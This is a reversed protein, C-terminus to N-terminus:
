CTTELKVVGAIPDFGSVQIHCYKKFTIDKVFPQLDEATKSCTWGWLDEWKDDVKRKGYRYFAVAAIWISIHAVIVISSWWTGITAAFNARRVGHCYSVLIIANILMSTVSISFYTYTYTTNTNEPWIPQEEDNHGSHTNNRTQLFKVLTLTMPVVVAISLLVAVVRSIFRMVRIRYKMNSDEIELQKVAPDDFNDYGQEQFKSTTPPSYNPALYNNDSANFTSDRLQQYSGGAQNYAM